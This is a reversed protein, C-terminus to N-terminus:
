KQYRGFWIGWIWSWIWTITPISGRSHKQPSRQNAHAPHQYRRFCTEKTGYCEFSGESSSPIPGETWSDYWKSFYSLHRFLWFLFLYKYTLLNWFSNIFDDNKGFYSGFIALIKARYQWVVPCFDKCNKTWIKPFGHSWLNM